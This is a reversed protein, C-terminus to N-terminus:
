KVQGVMLWPVYVSDGDEGASGYGNIICLIM